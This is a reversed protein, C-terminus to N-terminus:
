MDSYNIRISGACTSNHVGTTNDDFVCLYLSGSEIDSISNGTGIYRTPLDLKHYRIVHASNCGAQNLTVTEDILVDFRELYNPNRCEMPDTSTAVANWVQQPNLASGDPQKDYVVAIRTTTQNDTLFSTLNSVSNHILLRMQISKMVIKRGIRNTNDTGTAVGNLLQNIPGATTYFTGSVVNDIYKLEPGIDQPSVHHYKNNAKKAAIRPRSAKFRKVSAQPASSGQSQSFTRKMRQTFQSM